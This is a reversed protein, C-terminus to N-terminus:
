GQSPEGSADQPLGTGQCQRDWVGTLSTALTNCRLSCKLPWPQGESAMAM